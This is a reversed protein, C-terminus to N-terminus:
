ININLYPCLAVLQCCTQCMYIVKVYEEINAKKLHMNSVTGQRESAVPGRHAPHSTGEM